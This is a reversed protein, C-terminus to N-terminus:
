RFYNVVDVWNTFRIARDDVYALAPLKRNTVGIVGMTNWYRVHDPILEFRLDKFEERCWVIVEDAPRATLIFVGYAESLEKLARHAGPMPPDYIDKTHWGLSYQHLVGDFDLAISRDAPPLDANSSPVGKM